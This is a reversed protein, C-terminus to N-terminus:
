LRHKQDPCNKVPDPNSRQFFFFWIRISMHFKNIFYFTSKLHIEIFECYMEVSFTLRNSLWPDPDLGLSRSVPGVLFTLARDYRCCHKLFFECFNFFRGSINKRKSFSPEVAETGASRYLIGTTHM